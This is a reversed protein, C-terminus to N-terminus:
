VGLAARGAALTVDKPPSSDIRTWGIEGLDYGLQAELVKPTADSVNAKRELIRAASLEPPAELWLGDFRVGADRAVREIAARQEPRAFVADAVVSHGDALLAACTDYLRRYTRGTVEPAYGEPGLRDHIPVGMLHKRLSDSRVVAAGPVALFPALERGMRSKGSGSLGGVALLRPAPPSLYAMAARLYSRADGALRQREDGAAGAAGATGAAMTAAVHARVGARCSLYLPMPAVGAFDATLDLYHNFVWNAQRRAGRHDLDMLLFALDYMTDICAIDESFEIADFLTPRGDWLCINGLHLDGHCQRVFGAARREEMRPAFRELAAFSAAALDEVEAAPLIAAEGGRGQVHALMSLRNTAITWDLGARGGKDPRVPAARHFAAVAETLANCRERDLEGRRALRDFLTDQDFRRMEVVWDVAEGPGDLELGGGAARTLARVGLYLEPSARRNIALEAECAAKRAAPATFDLFPLRVAKKLKFVREGALFLASIHTDVREVAGGGHTRPDALFVEAESAPCHSM